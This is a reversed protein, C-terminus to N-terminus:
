PSIVISKYMAEVESSYPTPNTFSFIYVRGGAKTFIYTGRLDKADFDMRYAKYGSISLQLNHRTIDISGYEDQLAVTVRNFYDELGTEGADDVDVTLITRDSPDPNQGAMRRWPPLAPSYLNAISVVDRGYDRTVPVGTEELVWDRPCSITIGYPLDTTVTDTRDAPATQQLLATATTVPAATTAPTGAPVSTGAQATDPALLPPPTDRPAPQMSICGSLLVFSLLLVGALQYVGHNTQLAM